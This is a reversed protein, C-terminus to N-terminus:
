APSCVIIKNVHLNANMADSYFLREAAAKPTKLEDCFGDNPAMERLSHATRELLVSSM